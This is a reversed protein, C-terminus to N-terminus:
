DNGHYQLKHPHTPVDSNSDQQTFMGFCRPLLEFLSDFISDYWISLKIPVVIHLSPIAKKDWNILIEM